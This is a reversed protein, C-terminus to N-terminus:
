VTGKTLLKILMDLAFSLLTLLLGLLSCVALVIGTLRTAEPRSPWTVKVMERKVENIFGKLGRKSKPIPISPTNSM